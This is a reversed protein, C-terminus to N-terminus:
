WPNPHLLDPKMSSLSAVVKVTNQTNGFKYDLLQNPCVGQPEQCICRSFSLSAGKLLDDCLCARVNPQWHDLISIHSILCPVDSWVHAYWGSLVDANLVLVCISVLGSVPVNSPSIPVHEILSKFSVLPPPLQLQLQKGNLSVPLVSERLTEPPPLTWPLLLTYISKRLLFFYGLQPDTPVVRCKVLFGMGGFLILISDLNLRIESIGWQFFPLFCELSSSFQHSKQTWNPISLWLPILCGGKLVLFRTKMGFCFMQLLLHGTAHVFLMQRAVLGLM